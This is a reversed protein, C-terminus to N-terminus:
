VWKRGRLKAIKFQTIKAKEKLHEKALYNKTLVSTSKHGSFAQIDKTPINIDLNM